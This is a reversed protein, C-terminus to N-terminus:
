IKVDVIGGMVDVSTYRVERVLVAVVGNERVMNVVSPPDLKVVVLKGRGTVKTVEDLPMGIVRVDVGEGDTKTIELGTMVLAM